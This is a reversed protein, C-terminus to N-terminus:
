LLVIIIFGDHHLIGPISVGLSTLAQRGESGLYKFVDGVTCIVVIKSSILRLRHNIFTSLHNHANPYSCTDFTEVRIAGEKAKKKLKEYDLNLDALDVVLINVGKYVRFMQILIHFPYIGYLPANFYM